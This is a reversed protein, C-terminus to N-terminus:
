GWLPNTQPRVRSALLELLIRITVFIVAWTVMCLLPGYLITSQWYPKLSNFDSSTHITHVRDSCYSRNLAQKGLACENLSDKSFTDLEPDLWGSPTHLSCQLGLAVRGLWPSGSNQHGEYRYCGLEYFAPTSPVGTREWEQMLHKAKRIPMKALRQVGGSFRFVAVEEAWGLCDREGSSPRLAQCDKPGDGCAWTPPM